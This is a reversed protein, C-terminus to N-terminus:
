AGESIYERGWYTDDKKVAYFARGGDRRYAPNITKACFGYDAEESGTLYRCMTKDCEVNKEPDCEYFVVREGTNRDVLYGGSEVIDELKCM